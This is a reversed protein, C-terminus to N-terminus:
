GKTAEAIAKRAEALCAKIDEVPDEPKEEYEIALCYEYNNRALAKLLDVTRLDGQGLVTFTRADKVDKLHVGYVRKGFVEVARVPDERSRLFHGTDVCCGIKPHHDKIAAAITEIKAFRDGPGHNHIGIAVGYEEVLKDLLDFSGPEPSCSLYKLGMAKAFEFYKRNAAEDKGLHVVGYGILTVGAAELQRKREDLQQPDASMPVHDPYSEWYHIGLEQTVALAKRTDARGDSRYGRLSYSQLGMKFPAYPGEKEDSARGAAAAAGGVAFTGVAACGAALVHRRTWDRRDVGTAM